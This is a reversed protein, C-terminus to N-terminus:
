GDTNGETTRFSGCPIRHQIMGAFRSGFVHDDDGPTNDILSLIIALQAACCDIHRLQAAGSDPDIYEGALFASWHRAFSAVHTEITAQETGPDRYTGRGSEGLGHKVAGYAFPRGAAIALEAPVLDPRSTKAAKEANIEQENM